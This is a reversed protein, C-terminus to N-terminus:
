TAVSLLVGLGLTTSDAFFFSLPQSCHVVEIYELLARLQVATAFNLTVMHLFIQLKKNTVYTKYIMYSVNETAITIVHCM